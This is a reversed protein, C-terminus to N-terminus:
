RSISSTNLSHRATQGAGLPAMQEYGEIVFDANIPLQLRALLASTDRLHTM